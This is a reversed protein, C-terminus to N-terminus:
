HRQQLLAASMQRNQASFVGECQASSIPLVLLLHVLHLLDKYDSKYQEKTLLVAWLGSYTKDHFERVVLTKLNSWQGLVKEQDCKNRSLPEKVLISLPIRM